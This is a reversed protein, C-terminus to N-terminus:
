GNENVAKILEDLEEPTVFEDGEHLGNETQEPLPEQNSM